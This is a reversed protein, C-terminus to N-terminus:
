PNNKVWRMFCYSIGFAFLISLIFAAIAMHKNELVDKIAPYAVFISAMFVIIFDFAEIGKDTQEM